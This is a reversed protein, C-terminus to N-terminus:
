RRHPGAELVTSPLAGYRSPVGYMLGIMSHLGGPQDIRPMCGDPWEWGGEQGSGNASLSGSDRLTGTLGRRQYRDGNKAPPRTEQLYRQSTGGLSTYQVRKSSKASAWVVRFDFAAAKEPNVTKCERSEVLCRWFCVQMRSAHMAHRGKQLRGKWHGFCCAERRVTSGLIRSRRDIQVLGLCDSRWPLAVADLDSIAEFHQQGLPPLM